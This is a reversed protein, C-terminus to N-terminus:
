MDLNDFRDIKNGDTTKPDPEHESNILLRPTCEVEGDLCASDDWCFHTLDKKSATYVNDFPPGRM